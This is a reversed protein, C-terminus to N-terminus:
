PATLLIGTKGSIYTAHALVRGNADVTKVENLRDTSAGGPIIIQSIIENTGGTNITDGVKLLLSLAGGNAAQRWIGVTGGTTSAVFAAQNGDGIVPNDFNTFTEGSTGPATDGIKAIVKLTGDTDAVIARNEGTAASFLSVRFTVKANVNSFPAWISWLKSGAPIGPLATDNTKAIVTLSSPVAPNGKWVSQGGNTLFARTFLTGVSTLSPRDVAYFTDALGPTAQGARVVCSLSGGAPMYWIGSGGGQLNSFFAIDGAPNMRPDCSNGMMNDFTDLTGGGVAPAAAGQKAVTSLTFSGASATAKVLATSSDTLKVAFTAYGADSTGIWGDPALASATGGAVAEGERLLKHLGSGGLESWIVSDTSTTVLPTGTNVRLCGVYTLEAANNIYPNSPLVDYLANGSDPAISGSRAVVMTSASTGLPSKWIGQFNDVTVGAGANLALHARFALAGNPAMVMGSRISDWFGTTTGGATSGPAASVESTFYIMGGIKVNPTAPPTFSLPASGGAATNQISGGNLSLPGQIAIGDNDFDASVVTYKFTITITGSGSVYTAKRLTTGEIFDMSPLGSVTVAFQYTATFTLVDSEKYTADAPRTVSILDNVVVTLSQQVPVAALYAADAASNATITTTGVAIPHVKGNVITAVATDSSTYTIVASPDNSTAGPSFDASTTSTTGLPGFTIVQTLRSVQLLQVVGIAPQYTIDGGQAATINATGAGVIHVLTGTVTAVAPNSSVYTVTLGSSSTAALNFDADGLAKIALPTFTITQPQKGLCFAVNDAKNAEPVTNLPDIYAYVTGAGSLQVGTMTVTKTQGIGLNVLTTASPHALPLGGQYPNGDYLRLTVNSFSLGSAADNTVPIAFDASVGATVNTAVVTGLSLNTSSVQVDVYVPLSTLGNSTVKLGIQGTYPTASSFVIQVGTSDGFVGDGNLDWSYTSIADGNIDYSKSGDLTISAGPLGNYGQYANSAVPVAVPAVDGNVVTVVATTTAYQIPNSNDKVRLTVTHAGISHLYAPSVTPKIGTADPTTWNLGDSSDFDWLYETIVRTPDTNYSGTADLVVSFPGVTSQQPVAAIVAIPPPATVSRTLVLISVSTDADPSGGVWTDSSTWSGDNNQGYLNSIDRQDPSLTPALLGSNGLLWASEEQYWDRTTGGVTITNVDMLALGKKVGYMAYWVGAWGAGDGGTAGRNDWVSQVFGLLSQSTANSMDLGAMKLISLAGGTKAANRWGSGPSYDVGGSADMLAETAAVANDAWWQPPPLNLVDKAMAMFLAPWQQASGDYRNQQQGLLSYEFAGRISDDGQSWLLTDGFDVMLSYYSKGAFPGASIIRAQADAANKMPNLLAMAVACDAYTGGTFYAGMDAVGGTDCTRVAIGDSHATINQYGGGSLMHTHARQLLYSYVDEVPDNFPSHGNEEFALTSFATVGDGAEGGSQYWYWDTASDKAVSGYLYLLGKEIAMDVRDFHSPNPLVRVVAQRSTTGTTDTVSITVTKSGATAFTHSVSISDSRTADDSATTVNGTANPSGDGFAIAYTAAGTLGWARGWVTTSENMAAKGYTTRQTFSPMVSVSPAALGVGTLAALITLVYLIPKM